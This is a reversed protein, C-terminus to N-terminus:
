ITTVPGVERAVTPGSLVAIPVGPGLVERAVEHPLRGSSLEFGKTAWAVRQGPALRPQLRELTARLAHSPVVILLDRAGTVAAAFDPEITLREPFPVGPLYRENRRTAALQRLQEPDRGWLQTPHGSRAFQVALATGWSGAGLVAIPTAGTPPASPRM